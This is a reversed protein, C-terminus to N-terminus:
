VYHVRKEDYRNQQVKNEAPYGCPILAFTELREPINLIARVKEMRDTVPAIGMWVAGLGLEDAQLLLNEVSASLDIQAYQPARFEKRYCAVFVLPAGKACGTYPSSTSLETIKERDTVVYYEWPQQNCASPAAMAARLMMKIKEPEVSLEQYRRISTRHYISSASTEWMASREDDCVKSIKGDMIRYAEGWVTETHDLIMLYSGDPLVLFSRGYSDEYTIDEYLRKGDLVTDKVMQYHPLIMTKTLGLGPLFRVYEPDISEGELEPQAYVTDASNMTGASIGIVIGEFNQLKEKLGIQRFFRNQTPVHGGGLFIVDYSHLTEKSIEKRRDDWLDFVRATLGAKEIAAKFFATMEDNREHFTPAAAILLCRANEKWYTKLNKVFSNKEDLGEVLRSRDLPGSPSSTLFTIM